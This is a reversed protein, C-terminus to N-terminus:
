TLAAFVKDLTRGISAADFSTIEAEGHLSRGGGIRICPIIHVQRGDFEAMCEKTVGEFKKWSRVGAAKLILPVVKIVTSSTDPEEKSALMVDLVATGIALTEYPEVVRIPEGDQYFGAKMRHSCVIIAKQPMKYITCAKM